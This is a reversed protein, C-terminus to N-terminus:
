LIKPIDFCNKWLRIIVLIKKAFKKLINWLKHIILIVIYSNSGLGRLVYYENNVVYINMRYALELFSAQWM